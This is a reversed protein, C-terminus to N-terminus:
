GRRSTPDDTKPLIGVKEAAKAISAQLKAMMQDESAKFSDVDKANVSFHINIEVSGSSSGSNNVPVNSMDVPVARGDPLPIVAEDRHLVAPAGGGFLDNTTNPTGKDFYGGTRYSYFGKGETYKYYAPVGSGDRIQYWQGDVYTNQGYAGGGLSSDKAAAKEDANGNGLTASTGTNKDYTQSRDYSFTNGNQSVGTFINGSVTGSVGTATAATSTSTGTTSTSTPGGGSSTRLSTISSAVGEMVSIMKDFKAAFLDNGAKTAVLTQDLTDKVSRAFSSIRGNGSSSSGGVGEIPIAGGGTLPVVAENPHLIAPIGGSTNATGGAYSPAGIFSSLSARAKRGSGKHSVGGGAFSDFFSDKLNGGITGDFTFSDFAGSGDSFFTDSSSGFDAGGGGGGGGSGGGGGGGGGGSGISSQAAAL